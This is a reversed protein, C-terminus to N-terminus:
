RFLANGELLELCTRSNESSLGTMHVDQDESQEGIEEAKRDERRM